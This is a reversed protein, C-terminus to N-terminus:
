ETNHYARYCQRIVSDVDVEVQLIMMDSRDHIVCMVNISTVLLVREQSVILASVFGQAFVIHEGM